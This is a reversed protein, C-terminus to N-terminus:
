INILCVMTKHRARALKEIKSSMRLKRETTGKSVRRTNYYPFHLCSVVTLLQCYKCLKFWLFSKKGFVFYKNWHNTGYNTLVLTSVHFDHIGKLQHESLQFSQDYNIPVIVTDFFFLTLNWMFLGNFQCKVISPAAYKTIKSINQIKVTIACNLLYKLIHIKQSPVRSTVHGCWHINM